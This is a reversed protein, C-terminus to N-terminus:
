VELEGGKKMRKIKDLVLDQSMDMKMQSEKTRIDHIIQRDTPLTVHKFREWVEATKVKELHRVLDFSRGTEDVLMFPRRNDSKVVKMGAMEAKQIFGEPTKTKHWMETVRKRLEPTKLNRLPTEKMLFHQEMRQRAKDHKRFNHSDSIMKGKEHDYREWVVHAHKRNNKFHVVLARKGNLKLEEGLIDAAKIWQDNTLDDEGIAPNIQAHYLGKDTRTLESTMNMEVLAKVLDTSATGRIEIVEVRDNEKTSLLYRGLQRGNGRAKGRIVM